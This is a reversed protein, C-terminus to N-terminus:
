SALKLVWWLGALVLAIVVLMGLWHLVRMGGPTRAEPQGDRGAETGASM